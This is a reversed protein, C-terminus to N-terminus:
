GRQKEWAQPYEEPSFNTDSLCKYLKGDTYIMYEGTHYMDHAGQPAVWPRATDQSKGHLPRNFTYWAPNGPIIDPYVANDYSQYCEWTQGNANYVDGVSHSGATWDDYLGSVRLREDDDEVPQTKLLRRMMEATSREASPITQSNLYASKGSQYVRVAEAYTDPVDAVELGDMWEDDSSALSTKVGNYRQAIEDAEEETAAYVTFQEANETYDVQYRLVEVRNGYMRFM